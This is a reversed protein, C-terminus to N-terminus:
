VARTLRSLACVLAQRAPFPDTPHSSVTLQALSGSACANALATVGADGIQNEYLNLTQVTSTSYLQVFSVPSNDYVVARAGGAREVCYGDRLGLRSRVAM